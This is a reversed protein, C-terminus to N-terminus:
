AEPRVSVCPKDADEEPDEEDGDVGNMDSCVSFETHVRLSAENAADASANEVSYQSELAVIADGSWLNVTQVGRVSRSQLHHRM